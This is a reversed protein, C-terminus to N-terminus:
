LGIYTITIDSVQTPTRGSKRIVDIVSAQFQEDTQENCILDMLGCEHEMNVSQCGKYVAKTALDILSQRDIM